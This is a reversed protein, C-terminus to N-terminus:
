LQFHICRNAAVTRPIKVTVDIFEHRMTSRPKIPKASANANCFLSTAARLASAIPSTSSSQSCGCTIVSPRLPLRSFRAPKPAPRPLLLAHLKMRGIAAAINSIVPRPLHNPVRHQIKAAIRRSTTQYTRISSSTMIRAQASKPTLAPRSTPFVPTQTAGAASVDSSRVCLVGLACLERLPPALLNPRDPHVDAAPNSRM